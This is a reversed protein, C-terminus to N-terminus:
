FVDETESFGGGTGEYCMRRPDFLMKVEGISGVWSYRIKWVKVTVIGDHRHVTIGCDAKAWWAASGHCDNGDPIRTGGQDDKPLKTPHVVIWIHVGHAMCFSKLKTLMDSVWDTENASKDRAIYNYPDIIAGRIGYRMIAVRLRDLISDLTSLAGDGQYIFSFHENVWTMERELVEEPVRQDWISRSLKHSILVPIHIAPENEFSCISFKWGKSKALHVMISDVLTSKGSGPTVTTVTLQGPVVTYLRDIDHYGTSAGPQLGNKYLDRVQEAFHDASYLGSVPWPEAKAVVEKLASIGDKVLVDNVDKRAEPWVLRWCKHKGIRRAIEEATVIGPADNDMVVFVREAKDIIDKARWIYGYTTDTSPDTESSAKQNAGQPISVVNAIGIESLSLADVEGETIWLDGPGAHDIGWMDTLKTSSFGKGSISRLKKGTTGDANQYPFVVCATEGMGRIFHNTGHVGYRAATATSIGRSFLWGEHVPNHELNDSIEVVDGTNVRGSEGCHHCCYLASDPEVTLSLTRAHKDRREDACKCRLRHTGSRLGAALDIIEERSYENM